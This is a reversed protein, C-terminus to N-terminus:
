LAALLVAGLAAALFAVDLWKERRGTRPPRDCGCM